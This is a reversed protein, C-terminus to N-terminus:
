RKIYQSPSINYIRKFARTFNTVEQYGCLRAIEAVPLENQSLLQRAKQMQIATFYAKPSEGTAQLLRRRLTATSMNM